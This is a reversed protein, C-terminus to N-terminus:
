VPQGAATGMKPEPRLQPVKVARRGAGTATGCKGPRVAGTRGVGDESLGTRDHAQLPARRSNRHFGMM